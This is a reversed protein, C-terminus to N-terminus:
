PADSAYKGASVELQYETQACTTAAGSFRYVKIFYDASNNNCNRVNTNVTGSCQTANNCCVNQASGAGAACEGPACCSWLRNTPSGPTVCPAEGRQTTQNSFNTFWRYDIAGNACPPDYPDTGACSTRQVQVRLSGDTPTLFKVRVHLKDMGPNALTGSDAVDTATFKYWDVDTGPVIRGSVTLATTSSDSITGLNVAQACTNGTNDNADQQCECGNTSVGDVDFWGGSCQKIVCQGGLCTMTANDRPACLTDPNEDTQGNCNNDIGDCIEPRGPHILNSQDNCDGPETAAYRGDPNCLCKSDSTLGYGDNDGDYYYTVCGIANQTDQLGDCNDDIGNNCIETKGPHVDPNNDNCDLQPRYDARYVGEAFCLCRSRSTGWGDGDVDEYFTTCGTANQDNQTGNCNDDIGNGCIETRSPNVLVNNDDCDNDLKTSYNGSATCLCRFDSTKGWGDGDGDYYYNVCGVANIDNTDGNCNDDFATDCREQVGPNRTADTDACDGPELARYFGAPACLCKKLDTGYGDNDFDYFYEQCGLANEEDVVGDCNDDIGNCREVQGNFVNPNFPECDPKAPTPCGPNPNPDGDGDIDCDCADGYADGDFNAQSPNEFYPCNDIVAPIPCEDGNFDVGLNYIGDGDIDCDCADGFGDLDYDAQDPNPTVPCNDFENPVGDNDWDFNCADGFPGGTTNEQDPNYHYPCNDAPNVVPCGPNNNPVGDGDIDCDCADGIGNGNMDNQDPNSVYICNDVVAVVPCGPNNNPVGDDDIDCDCADGKGDRDTDFQDPNHVLWCNDPTAVVPCGPNNNPVGDDDADCDCADGKGDLDTDLQDANAVYPCNDAPNPTPCAGGLMDLPNANKVGDGDIDCDCADGYQDGDVNSQTPNKVFQCNDAVDPVGDNDDDDDCADGKLTAATEESVDNNAQDPNYVYPCNDQLNPIGDGDIDPDVCDAMGDNDMDPFGDDTIGNCDDDKGNCVEPIAYQGQCSGFVGNICVSEGQCTGYANTLACTRPPVGNDTRGDCDDDIQNCEEAAPIRADCDADCTRTGRCTGFENQNYCATLNGNDKFKDTCECVGDEPVCQKVLSAGSQVDQCVYGDPCDSSLNCQAGCFSGEPGREICLFRRSGAGWQPACETDARCPQCLTPFPYICGYVNEGGVSVRDCIWGPPCNADVGCLKSCVSQDNTPVCLGSFCDSGFDCECMFNGPCELPPVDPGVDAGTDEGPDYQLDLAADPRGPDPTDKKGDDLVIPVDPVDLGTDITGLDISSDGGPGCSSWTLSGIAFLAVLLTLTRNGM